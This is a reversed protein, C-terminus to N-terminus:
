SSEPAQQTYTPARTNDVQMAELESTERDIEEFANEPSSETIQPVLLRQSEPGEKTKDTIKTVNLIDTIYNMMSRESMQLIDQATPNARSNNNDAPQTSPIGTSNSNSNSTAPVSTAPINSQAAPAIPNTNSTATPATSKTPVKTPPTRTKGKTPVKKTSFWFKTQKTPPKKPSASSTQSNIETFQALIQELTHDIQPQQQFRKKKKELTSYATKIDERKNNLAVEAHIEILEEAKIRARRQKEGKRERKRILEKLHRDCINSNEAAPRPDASQRTKCVECDPRKKKGLVDQQDFESIDVFGVTEEYYYEEDNDSTDYVSPDPNQM